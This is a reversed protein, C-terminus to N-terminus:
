FQTKLGEEELLNTSVKNTQRNNVDHELINWEHPSTALEGNGM